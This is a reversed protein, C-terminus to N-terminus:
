KPTIAIDDFYVEGSTPQLLFNIELSGSIITKPDNFRRDSFSIKFDKKVESWNSGASFTATMSGEESNKETEDRADRDRDRDNQGPTPTARPLTGSWGVLVQGQSLGSGKVKFSLTYSVGNKLPISHQRLMFINSPGGRLMVESEDTSRTNPKERSFRPDLAGSYQSAAPASMIKNMSPQYGIRLAAKGEPPLAKPDDAATVTMAYAYFNGRQLGYNIDWGNPIKLAATTPTGKIEVPASFKPETKTGTNMSVAIRGNTKGAIIDFLGDGNLDATAITFIGNFSIPTAANGGIPVFSTFPLDDGPKWAGSKGLHLAIKGTREAILLDMVGDGNYDVVAPTLQERGDGFAIVTRNTEEFVPRGPSGSNLLLHINNASYSGEGVLLDEKGDKNWDWVAPAFVNGWKANSDKTTPIVLRSVDAVPRFEPKAGSGDNRVFFIEGWYNGVYLDNKGSRNSDFLGIRPAYRTYIPLNVGRELPWSRTLFLPSIEGITFKPETKTGSNFYIRFYGLPDMALIDVLGDGNMDAAAVSVPMAQESVTGTTGLIAVQEREGALFGAADVGDWLDERTRSSELGGNRLLPRPTAAPAQALLPVIGILLLFCFALLPTLRM